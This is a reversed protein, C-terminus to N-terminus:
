HRQLDFDYSQTRAVRDFVFADSVQKVFPLSCKPCKRILAESMKNEVYTRKTV